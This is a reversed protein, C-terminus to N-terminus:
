KVSCQAIDLNQKVLCLEVVGYICRHRCVSDKLFNGNLSIKVPWSCSVTVGPPSQGFDSDVMLVPANKGGAQGTSQM